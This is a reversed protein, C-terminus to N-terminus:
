CCGSRRPRNRREEERVREQEMKKAVYQQAHEENCFYEGFRKVNVEKKIDVGCVHCHKRMGFM